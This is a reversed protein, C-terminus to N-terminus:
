TLMDEVQPHNPLQAHDDYQGQASLLGLRDIASGLASKNTCESVCICFCLQLHKCASTSETCKHQESDSNDSTGRSLQEVNQSHVFKGLSRM